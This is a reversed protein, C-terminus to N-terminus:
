VVRLGGRTSGGSAGYVGPRRTARGHRKASVTTVGVRNAAVSNLRTDFFRVEVASTLAMRGSAVLGCGVGVDDALV